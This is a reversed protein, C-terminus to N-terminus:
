PNKIMLLKDDCIFEYSVEAAKGVMFNEDGERDDFGGTCLIVSVDHIVNNQIREKTIDLERARIADLKKTDTIVQVDIKM